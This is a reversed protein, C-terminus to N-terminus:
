WLLCCLAARVCARCSCTSFCQRGRVLDTKNLIVRDAYAIQEVAENVVGDPKQEDLHREVHKADVQLPIGCCYLLFYGVATYFVHTLSHRTVPAAVAPVGCATPVRRCPTDWLLARDIFCPTNWLVHVILSDLAGVIRRLTQLTDPM